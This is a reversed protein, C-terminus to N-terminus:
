RYAPPGFYFARPRYPVGLSRFDDPYVFPGGYFCPMGNCYGQAVYTYGSPPVGGRLPVLPPLAVYGPPPLVAQGAAPVAALLAAPLIWGAIAPGRPM